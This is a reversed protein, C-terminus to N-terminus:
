CWGSHHRYDYLKVLGGAVSVTVVNRTTKGIKVFLRISKERSKMAIQSILCVYKYNQYALM